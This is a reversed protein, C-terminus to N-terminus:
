LGSLIPRALSHTKRVEIVRGVIAQQNKLPMDSFLHAQEASLIIENENPGPMLYKCTLRGQLRVLYVHGPMLGEDAEQRRVIVVDGHAIKPAMSDGSVEVAFLAPSTRAESAKNLEPTLYELKNGEQYEETESPIPAGAAARGIIPIQLMQKQHLVQQFAEVPLDFADALAALKDSGINTAQGIEIFHIYQQSIRNGSRASVAQRSLRREKRLMQLWQGFCTSTPM